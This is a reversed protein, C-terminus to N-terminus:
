SRRFAATGERMAIYGEHLRMLLANEYNNRGLIDGLDSAGHLIGLAKSTRLNHNKLMPGCIVECEPLPLGGVQSLDLPEGVRGLVVAKGPHREAYDAMHGCPYVLGECGNVYISSLCSYCRSPLEGYVGRDADGLFIEQIKREAAFFNYKKLIPRIADMLQTKMIGLDELSLFLESYEKIPFFELRDIEPFNQGIYEIMQPLLRFNDKFIVISIILEFSGPAERKKQCFYRMAQSQAEFSGAKGRFKDHTAADPGYFATTMRQLGAELLADIRPADLIHCNSFLVPFLGLKGSARILRLM